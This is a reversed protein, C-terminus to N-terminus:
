SVGVPCDIGAVAIAAKLDSIQLSGGGPRSIPRPVPRNESTSPQPEPEIRGRPDRVVAAAAADRDGLADALCGAEGALAESRHPTANVRQKRGSGAASNRSARPSRM